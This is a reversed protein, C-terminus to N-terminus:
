SSVNQSYGYGTRTIPVGIFSAIAQALLLGEDKGIVINNIQSVKASSIVIRVGDKTILAIVEYNIPMSRIGGSSNHSSEIKSESSLEIAGISDLPYEKSKSGTLGKKTISIKNQDRDFTIVTNKNFIFLLLTVIGFGFPIWFGFDNIGNVKFDIYAMFWCLITFLLTFMSGFWASRKLILLQQSQKIIEM